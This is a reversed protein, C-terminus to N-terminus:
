SPPPASKTIPTHALAKAITSQVVVHQESPTAPSAPFSLPNQTRISRTRKVPLNGLGVMKSKGKDMSSRTVNKQNPHGSIPPESLSFGSPSKPDTDEGNRDNIAVFEKEIDSSKRKQNGM